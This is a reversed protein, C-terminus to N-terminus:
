SIEVCFMVLSVLQNSVVHKSVFELEVLLMLTGPLLEPNHPLLVEKHRLTITKIINRINYYVHLTSAPQTVNHTVNHTVSHTVSQLM